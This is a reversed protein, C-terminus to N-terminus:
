IDFWKDLEPMMVKQNKNKPIMNEPALSHWPVLTKPSIRDIIDLIEDQNGHGSLNTSVFQINLKELFSQMSGYAPDFPGLPVGNTHIYVAGDVDYDLLLFINDFSNQVTYGSPNKSIEEQTTFTYKSKLEKMYDSTDTTDELVQIALNPFLAQVLVATKPEFVPIRSTKESAKIINELRDKNRHTSNFFTLGKHSQITEVFIDVLDNETTTVAVPSPVEDDNRPFFATGEMMLYDVNKAHIKEIFSHNLEPRSGRMRIDGSHVFSADPTEILLASNGYIDHDTAYGTVSINGIKVQKEYEFASIESVPKNPQEGIKHLLAYFEKSETSMYVPINKDLADLSAVHDLHLHSVFVATNFDSKEASLIDLKANTIDVQNYVGDIKPIVGMRLMASTQSDKSAKSFIVDSPNYARGFDCIVRDNGYRIEIINGGITNLGGWFRIQTKM